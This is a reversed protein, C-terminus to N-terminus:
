FISEGSTMTARSWYVAWVTQGGSGERWHRRTVAGKAEGSQRRVVKKKMMSRMEGFVRLMTM